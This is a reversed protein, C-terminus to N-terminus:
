LDKPNINKLGAELIDLIGENNIIVMGHRDTTIGSELKYTYIPQNGEMSTPLYSFNITPHEEKLTQGAEIVHTSVVFVSDKMAAFASTFAITAECADKVNTGRFLEDFLVFLKKSKLELAIKKVRLVEAYFHSAGMAIHDPLNITTYMGDLVSFEMKSAAVPFGMHGLYLAVSLSKMFTSKGAMNAGTLFIVNSEPTIEISNSVANSVLPHYLGELNVMLKNKSQAQPFAFSRELAMKAVTLYVDLYHTYRLLKLVQNRYTFRFLTDYMALEQDSWKKKIPRAWIADFVSENMILLMGDKDSQYPHHEHLKLENNFTRIKILLGALTIIGNRITKTDADIAVLNNLKTALSHEQSSM